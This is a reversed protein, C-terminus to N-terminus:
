KNNKLVLWSEVLKKQEKHTLATLIGNKRYYSDLPTELIIPIDTRVIKKLQSIPVTGYGIDAHKDIKSGKEKKSDNLHICAINHWGIKEVVSLNYGASWVHCTDFCIKIRKPYIKKLTTFIKMLTSISRTASTELILNAKTISLCYILEKVFIDDNEKKTCLHVIVGEGNIEECNNLESILKKAHRRTCININYASHIFVKKKGKVLIYTHPAFIQTVNDNNKKIKDYHRGIM